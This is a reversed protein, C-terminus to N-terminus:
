RISRGNCLGRLNIEELLERKRQSIIRYQILLFELNTEQINKSPMNFFM